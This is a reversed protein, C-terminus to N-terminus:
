MKKVPQLGALSFLEKLFTRVGNLFVLNMRTMKRDTSLFREKEYLMHFMKAVQLSYDALRHVQLTRCIEELLDPLQIMTRVLQLYSEKAAIADFVKKPDYTRPTQLQQAKAKEFVSELRALAYKLYWVPNEESSKKALEVDFNIHTEPPHRLFSFKIPDPGVENMLDDLTVFIGKRKSMRLLQEGHTIHVLQHVIMELQSPKVGLLQLAARLRRGHDFHDAGVILIARKQRRVFFKYWHRLLDSFFYTPEGSKKFVVENKAEGAATLNLWVADNQEMVLNKKKLLALLKQDLKQTYLKQESDFHDFTVGFRALPTKIMEKLILNSVAVGLKEPDNKLTQVLLARHRALEKVYDGQYLDDRWPIIGHHALLTEGLLRIQRGRDNVYYEKSVRHGCCSLIKALTEGIVAGRGNGLTLPGTPNASVFEIGIREKLSAPLSPTVGKKQNKLFLKFRAFLSKETLKFNLHGNAFAVSADQKFDDDLKQALAPFLEQPSQKLEKGLLFLANSTYDGFSLDSPHALVLHSKIKAFVQPFAARLVRHLSQQLVERMM